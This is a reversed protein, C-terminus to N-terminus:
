TRWVSWLRSRRSCTRQCSRELIDDLVLKIERDHFPSAGGGGGKPSLNPIDTFLQNGQMTMFHIEANPYLRSFLQM